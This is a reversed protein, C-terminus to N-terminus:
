AKKGNLWSSSAAGAEDELLEEDRRRGERASVPANFEYWRV